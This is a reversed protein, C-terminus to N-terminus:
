KTMAQALLVLIACSTIPVKKSWLKSLLPIHKGVGDQLVEWTYSGQGIVRIEMITYIYGAQELALAERKAAHLDDFMKSYVVIANDPHWFAIKYQGLQVTQM